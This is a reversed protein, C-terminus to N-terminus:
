RHEVEQGAACICMHKASIYVCQVLSNVASGSKPNLIPPAKDYAGSFSLVGPIRLGARM